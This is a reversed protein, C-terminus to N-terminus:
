KDYFQLLSPSDIFQIEPWRQLIQSLLAEMDKLNQETQNEDLRSCFNIRHTGIIAPKGWKFAINISELCKSVWDINPTISPEFLGNRVLYHQGAENKQGSYHYKKKFGKDEIPCNQQFSGQFTAVDNHHFVKEIEDDWVYCPAVTTKSKFGFVEEFQKLGEAISSQIYQLEKKNNYDYAAMLNGRRNEGNIEDISFCKREFAYHYRENGEKLFKMWRSVNLHENGHFQPVIMKQEIGKKLAEFANKSNPYNLYTALFSENYYTKFEGAAIKEFDPNNMIVNATLVPHNGNRDRFKEFVNCLATYDDATELTDYKSFPDKDKILGKELLQQRVEKSPIRISGWDDSEFVVLKSKLRSGRSNILHKKLTQKIM